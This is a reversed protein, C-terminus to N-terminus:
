KQLDKIENIYKKHGNLCPIRKEWNYIGTTIAVLIKKFAKCRSFAARLFEVAIPLTLNSEQSVMCTGKITLWIDNYQTEFVTSFIGTIGAVEQDSQLLLIIM